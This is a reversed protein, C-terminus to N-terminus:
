SRPRSRSGPLLSRRARSRRSSSSECCTPTRTRTIRRIGPVRCRVSSGQALQLEKSAYGHGPRPLELTAPSRVEHAFRMTTLVLAHGAAELAGLRERQRLVITGIGVKGTGNLADRLLSYAKFAMRGSPALYYPHEFYLSDVDKAPVFARIDFSQTAPVRAKAFDADALVVYEGKEYEYGKVIESWPVEVEEQECVRKYDIRSGDKKHLLHFSLENRSEGASYLGVPVTVLGFTIAGKWIARPV